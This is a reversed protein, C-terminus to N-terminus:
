TTVTQVKAPDTVVGEAGVVHGLFKVRRRLLACKSPKLKLGAQQLRQLVEELWSLHTRLDPGIVVIYVLHLLLTKWTAWPPVERHSASIHRARLYIRISIGEVELAEGLLSHLGRKPTPM